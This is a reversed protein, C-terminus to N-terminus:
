QVADPHGSLEHLLAALVAEDEAPLDAVFRALVGRRDAGRDLLRSMARAVTSDAVDLAGPAPTYVYARGRKERTIQGKEHLRGLVTLVTTYALESGEGLRIRVDSASVAHEAAAVVELVEQELRGRGRRGAAQHDRAM